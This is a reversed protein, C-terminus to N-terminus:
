RTQSRRSGRSIAVAKSMIQAEHGVYGSARVHTARDFGKGEVVQLDVCNGVTHPGPQAARKSLAHRNRSPAFSVASGEARVRAHVPVRSVSPRGSFRLGTRPPRDLGPPSADSTLRDAGQPVGPLHRGSRRLAAATWAAASAGALDLALRFAKENPRLAFLALALAGVTCAASANFVLKAVPLGWAVVAGTRNLSGADAGAEAYYSIVLALLGSGLVVAAVAVAIARSKNM